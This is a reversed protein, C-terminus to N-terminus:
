RKGMNLGLGAFHWFCEYTRKHREHGAGAECHEECWRRDMLAAQVQKESGFVCRVAEKQGEM